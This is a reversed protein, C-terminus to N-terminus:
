FVTTHLFDYCKTDTHPQSSRWQMNKVLMPQNSKRCCLQKSPYPTLFPLNNHRMFNIIDKVNSIMTPFRILQRSHYSANDMVIICKRNRPLNELLHNKFWNEFVQATMEDHNDAKCDGINKASLYLCNDVWGESGGPHLVMIRKGRSTPTKLICNCTGDDWGKKVDHTDFWTEDLYVIRCGESRLKRLREIFRYRWAVIRASEM